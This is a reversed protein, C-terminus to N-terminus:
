EVQRRGVAKNKRCRLCGLLAYPGRAAGTRDPHREEFRCGARDNPKLMIKDSFRHGSKRIMSQVPLDHSKAVEEAIVGRDIRLRFWDHGRIRGLNTAERHVAARYLR